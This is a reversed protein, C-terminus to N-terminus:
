KTKVSGDSSRWKWKRKPYKRVSTIVYHSQMSFTDHNTESKEKYGTWVLRHKCNATTLDEYFKEIDVETAKSM